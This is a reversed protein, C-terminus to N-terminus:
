VTEEEQHMVKRYWDATKRLATDADIPPKWGLERRVRDDDIVLSKVLRDVMARRGALAAALALFGTPLPFLRARVQLAEALRRVLAPTSITMDAVVYTKNDAVPSRAAKIIISCFNDVYIFSRLNKVAALPLPVGRSVINLLDRFNGKLGPGFVLPPRIITYTMASKNCIQMLIQEAEWQDRAYANRPDPPSSETYAQQSAGTAFYGEGHVKITSILIFRKVGAAAAAKALPAITKAAHSRGALHVVIDTGETLGALDANVDMLDLYRWAYKDAVKGDPKRRQLRLQWGDDALLPVLTRGVFGHAGTVLVTLQAM